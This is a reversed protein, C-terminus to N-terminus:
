FEFFIQGFLWFFTNRLFFLIGLVSWNSWNQSKFFHKQCNQAIKLFNQGLDLVRNISYSFFNKKFKKKTLNFKLILNQFHGEIDIKFFFIKKRTHTVTVFLFLNFNYFFVRLLRENWWLSFAFKLVTKLIEEDLLDNKLTM